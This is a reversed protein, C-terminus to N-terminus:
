LTYSICIITIIFYLYPFTAVEQLSFVLARCNDTQLCAYSSDFCDIGSRVLQIIMDPSFCGFMFRPKSKPLAEVVSNLLTAISTFQLDATKAGNTHFGDIIYGSIKEQDREFLDSVSFKRSVENYGGQISALLGSQLSKEEKLRLCQDLYETSRKVSHNLRKNSCDKPTDGDTLAQYAAPRFAATVDTLSESNLLTKGSSEFISVGRRDSFGSSIETLPDQIIQLTPCREPFGCFRSIGMGLAAVCDRMTYTTQLPVLLPHPQQSIREVNDVTLHPVSGAQTYLLTAPTPLNVDGLQLSGLRAVSSLSFKIPEM